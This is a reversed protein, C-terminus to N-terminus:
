KADLLFDKKISNEPVYIVVNVIWVRKITFLFNDINSDIPKKYTYEIRPHLSDFKITADNDQNILRYGDSTKIYMAFNMTPTMAMYWGSLGSNDNISVIEYSKTYSVTDPNVSMGGILAILTGIIAGVISLIIPLDRIWLGIGLGIAACIIITYM